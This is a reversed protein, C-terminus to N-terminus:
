WASDLESPPRRGPQLAPRLGPRGGSYRLPIHGKSLATV